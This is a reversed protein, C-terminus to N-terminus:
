KQCKCGRKKKPPLVGDTIKIELHLVQKDKPPEGMKIDDLLIWCPLTHQSKM